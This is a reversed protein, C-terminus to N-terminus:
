MDNRKKTKKSSISFYLEGRNALCEDKIQTGLYHRTIYEKGDITFVLDVLNFDILKAVVEICNRDSLRSFVFYTSLFPPTVFKKSAEGLQVRQLDAALKRIEDWSSM